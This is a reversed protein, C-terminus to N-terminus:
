FYLFAGLRYRTYEEEDETDPALDQLAKESPSSDVPARAGGRMEAALHLNRTLRLSVGVGVEGYEQDSQWVGNGLDVQTVGLGGLLQVSMRSRPMLDLVLSGGMRRDVREDHMQSKALEGEILLRDTLRIRGMFGVDEASSQEGVEVGGAFVGIGFRPLPAVHPRTAVVPYMAPPPPAPPAPPAVYYAPVPPGDCDYAPPPPPPQSFGGGVYVGGGVRLRVVPPATQHRRHRVRVRTRHPTGVRVKVKGRVRVTVDAQASQIGDAGTVLIPAALLTALVLSLMPFRKRSM